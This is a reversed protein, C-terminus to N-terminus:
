SRLGVGGLGYCPPSELDRFMTRAPCRSPPEQSGEIRLGEASGAGFVASCRVAELRREQRANDFGDKWEPARNVGPYQQRVWKLTRPTSKRPSTQEAKKGEFFVHQACWNRYKPTPWCYGGTIEVRAAHPLKGLM